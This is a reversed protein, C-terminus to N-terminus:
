RSPGSRYRQINSPGFPPASATLATASAPATPRSATMAAASTNRPRGTQPTSALTEVDGAQQGARGKRESRERPQEGGARSSDVRSRAAREPPGGEEAPGHYRRAGGHGDSM